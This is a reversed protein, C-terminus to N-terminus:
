VICYCMLIFRTLFYWLYFLEILESIVLVKFNDYLDNIGKCKEYGM